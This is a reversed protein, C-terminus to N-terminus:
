IECKGRMQSLYSSVAESNSPIPTTPRPMFATTAREEETEVAAFTILVILTYTDLRQPIFHHISECKFNQKAINAANTPNRMVNLHIHYYHLM